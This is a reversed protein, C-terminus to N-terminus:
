SKNMQHSSLSFAFAVSVLFLLSSLSSNINSAESVFAYIAQRWMAYARRVSYSWGRFISNIFYLLISMHWINLNNLSDNSNCRSLIHLSVYVLKISKDTYEFSSGKWKSNTHACIENRKRLLYIRM